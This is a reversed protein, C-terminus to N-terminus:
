PKPGSTQRSRSQLVGEKGRGMGHAMESLGSLREASVVADELKTFEEDPLRLSAIALHKRWKPGRKWAEIWSAGLEFDQKTESLANILSAAQALDKSVKSRGQVHNRRTSVILKHVAFREPAPVVVGVGADHLIVSRVPEHILFDLFPLAQAGIGGLSPMKALSYGYEANSRNPTLVEVKLGDKNRYGAVLNDTFGHFFPSFTPDVEGLIKGFDGTSDDILVSISHFQAIDVDETRYLDEDLKVGLLGSYTQFAHSGVITARLRFLGNKALRDIVEGETKTPTPLGSRRLQSALRRRAVYDAKLIQSSEVRKTVEPDDVPGVYQAKLKPTGDSQHELTRHYWYDRGRRNYKTFSGKESFQDSFQVDHAREVLDSFAIQDLRSLTRM